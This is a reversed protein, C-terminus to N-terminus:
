RRIKPVAPHGPALPPSRCVALGAKGRARMLGKLFWERDCPGDRVDRAFPLIHDSRTTKTRNSMPPPLWAQSGVWFVESRRGPPQDPKNSQQARFTGTTIRGWCVCGLSHPYNPM